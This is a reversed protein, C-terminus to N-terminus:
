KGGTPHCSHPDSWNALLSWILIAKLLIQLISLVQVGNKDQNRRDFRNIFGLKKNRFRQRFTGIRYRYLNIDIM